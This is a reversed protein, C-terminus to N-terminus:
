SRPSAARLALAAARRLELAELRFPEVSHGLQEELRRRARRSATLGRRLNRRGGPTLEVLYSRGDSENERRVVLGREVLSQIQDRITTNTVGTEEALVSPTV